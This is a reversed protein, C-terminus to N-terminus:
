DSKVVRYFAKSANAADLVRVVRSTARVPIDINIWGNTGNLSRQLQWKQGIESQFSICAVSNSCTLTLRPQDAAALLPVLALIAIAKM